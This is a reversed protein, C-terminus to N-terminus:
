GGPYRNYYFQAETTDDAHIDLNWGRVAALDDAVAGIVERLELQALWRSPISTEGHMAGLLNGTISGTSDSDGSHNVSLIIGSQIDSVSLACYLSMALAEEAVWGEGLATLATREAPRTRALMRAHEIAGLTEEHYPNRRLERTAADLAVELSDGKLLLAVLVALVGATLYGSPHGHTIAAIDCGISFTEGIRSPGEGDGLWHAMLMGVPAARMVGGCGKSDNSAKEDTSTMARLASLCTNGPARRDFLPRHTSLWGDISSPALLPSRTGQTYLWRLYARATVSRFSPGIGRDMMRTYARLLGEATYLTMQTDDTIAGFRGYTLEYDQIGPEGFTRLIQPLSMFEVHAGLADGVAGAILCGRYRDRLAPDPSLRPLAPTVISQYVSM